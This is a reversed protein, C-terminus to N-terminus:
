LISDLAIEKSSVVMLLRNRSLWYGLLYGESGKISLQKFNGNKTESILKKAASLIALAIGAIKVHEIDQCLTSKLPMGENSVILAEKIEPFKSTLKKLIKKYYRSHLLKM